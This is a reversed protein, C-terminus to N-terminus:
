KKSKKEASIGARIIRAIVADEAGSLKYDHPLAHTLRLYHHDRAVAAAFAWDGEKPTKPKIVRKPAPKSIEKELKKANRAESGAIDITKRPKRKQVQTKGM